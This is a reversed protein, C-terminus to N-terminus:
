MGKWNSITSSDADVREVLSEGMGGTTSEWGGCNSMVEGHTLSIDGGEGVGGLGTM